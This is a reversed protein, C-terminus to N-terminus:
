ELDEVSVRRPRLEEDVLGGGFSRYIEIVRIFTESKIRELDDQSDILSREADLLDLFDIIGADFQLRAIELAESNTSVQQQLLNQQRQVQVYTDLSTQAEALAQLLTAEFSGIAALQNANASDIQARVSVLDFAPWSLSPAVSWAENGGNLQSFGPALFGLFGSISLDPYLAARQSLTLAAASAVNREALRVDARRSLFAGVDGIALPGSLAPFDRYDNDIIFEDPTQGILAALANRAVIAQIELAPISSELAKVQAQIRLLDLDSSFGLESRDAVINRTQQLAALNRQAFERRAIAGRYQAYSTAVQATIGVQVDRWAFYEAEADALAAQAAYELRGFLDLNWSLGTGLQYNEVDIRNDTFGPIVQNQSTYNLSVDGIPVDNNNTDRFVAYASAIRAKAVDLNPNNKLATEILRNLEDDGFLRWWSSDREEVSLEDSITILTQTDASMLETQPTTIACANLFMALAGLAVLKLLSIKM